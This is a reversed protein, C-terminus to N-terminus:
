AGLPRPAGANVDVGVFRRGARPVSVTQPIPPRGDTSVTEPRDLKGEEILKRIEEGTLTEYELMAAALLHLKEQQDNLITQARAHADDVLKRIESDIVKATEDSMMTRQSSGMGLYGDQSEEYLLPGLKASMGWRMVMNRALSTAYQIDSSAGSSVKDHGFILEEAVRGGMSVSLNALM